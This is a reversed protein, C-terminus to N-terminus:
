VHADHSARRVLWYTHLFTARGIPGQRDQSGPASHRRVKGSGLATPETNKYPVRFPPRPLCSSPAPPWVPTSRPGFNPPHSGIACFFCRVEPSLKDTLRMDLGRAQEVTWGPPVFSPPTPQRAPRAPLAKNLKQLKAYEPSFASRRVAQKLAEREQAHVPTLTLEHHTNILWCSLPQPSARSLQVQLM